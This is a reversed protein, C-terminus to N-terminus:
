GFILEKGNETIIKKNIKEVISKDSKIVMENNDNELDNKMEDSIFDDIVKNKDNM